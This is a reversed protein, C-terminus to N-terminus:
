NNNDITYEYSVVVMDSTRLPLAEDLAVLPEAISGPGIETEGSTDEGKEELWSLGFEIMSQVAQSEDNKHQELIPIGKKDALHSIVGAAAARVKPKDDFLAIDLTELADIGFDGLRCIALIQRDENGSTLSADKCAQISGLQYVAEGLKDKKSRFRKMMKRSFSKFSDGGLDPM